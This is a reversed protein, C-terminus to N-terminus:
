LRATVDGKGPTPRMEWPPLQLDCGWVCVGLDEKKPSSERAPDLSPKKWFTKIHVRYRTDM